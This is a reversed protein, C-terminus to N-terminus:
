EFHRLRNVTLTISVNAQYSHPHPPETNSSQGNLPGKRGSLAQAHGNSDDLLIRSLALRRESEPTFVPVIKKGSLFSLLEFLHIDAVDSVGISISTESEELPIFQYQSLLSGPFATKLSM